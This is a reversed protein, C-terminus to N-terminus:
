EGPNIVITDGAQLQGALVQTEEASSAGLTVQTPEPKGNKFVYIVRQGDLFRIARSPVLLVDKLSELVVQASGTMQPRVRSDAGTIKIRVAFTVTEDAVDGVSPVEAVEGTYEKGPVADLRITVVQGPQIRNIDVESFRVELLLISLDDIRFALSGPNVRDGPQIEVQTVVGDFPAVLQQLNLAAQAAALRARAAAVDDPDPGDKLREVERLVDEVRARLVAVDAPSTGNELRAYLRQAQDLQALAAALNAEAQAIDVPDPPLLMRSYRYLADEYSRQYTVGQLLLSELQDQYGERSKGPQSTALKEQVLEIADRTRQLTNEWLLLTGYASQIAQRSAPSRAIELDRRADEV